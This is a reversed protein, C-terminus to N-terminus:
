GRSNYEEQIRELQEVFDDVKMYRHYPESHQCGAHSLYTFLSDIFDRLHIIVDLSKSESIETSSFAGKIKEQCQNVSIKIKEDSLSSSKSKTILEKILPKIIESLIDIEEPTPNKKISPLILKGTLKSFDDVNLNDSKCEEELESFTFQSPFGDQLSCIQQYTVGSVNSLKKALNVFLNISATTKIDPNYFTRTEELADEEWAHPVFDLDHWIRETVDGLKTDYDAAFLDNGPSPGASPSVKLTAMKNKDWIEQQYMLSLALTASLAGGLSHGCLTITVPRSAEGTINGLYDLLSCGEYRMDELLIKLGTSTGASVRMGPTTQDGNSRWPRGENWLKTQFVWFDQVIWGYWSQPNTGAIAIVYHDSQESDESKAIYMVSDAYMSQIEDGDFQYVAPGWVVGWRGILEQVRENTLLANLRTAAEEQLSSAQANKIGAVISSALNLCFIQQRIDYQAPITNQETM